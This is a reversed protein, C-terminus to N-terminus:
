SFNRSETEITTPVESEGSGTEILVNEKEDEDEDEDHSKEREIAGDLAEQIKEEM